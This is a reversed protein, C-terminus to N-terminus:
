PHPPPRQGRFYICKGETMEEVATKEGFCQSFKWPLAGVDNDSRFVQEDVNMKQEPRPMYLRSQACLVSKQPETLPAGGAAGLDPFLCPPGLDLGPSDTFLDRQRTPQPSPISNKKVGPIQGVSASRERARDFGDAQLM